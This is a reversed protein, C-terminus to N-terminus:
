SQCAHTSSGDMGYEILINKAAEVMAPDTGEDNDCALLFAQAVRVMVEPPMCAFPEAPPTTRELKAVRSELRM